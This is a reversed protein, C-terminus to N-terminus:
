RGILIHLDGGDVLLGRSYLLRQKGSSHQEEHQNETTM